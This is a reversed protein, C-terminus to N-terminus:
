GLAVDMEELLARPAQLDAEGLRQALAHLLRQVGLQTAARAGPGWVGFLAGSEVLGEGGEAEAASRATPGLDVVLPSSM